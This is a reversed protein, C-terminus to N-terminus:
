SEMSELSCGFLVYTHCWKEKKSLWFKGISDLSGELDRGFVKQSMLGCSNLSQKSGSPNFNLGSRKIV